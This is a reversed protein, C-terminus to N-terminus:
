LRLLTRKVYNKYTYYIIHGEWKWHEEWWYHQQVRTRRYSFLYQFNNSNNNFGSTCRETANIQITDFELVNLKLTTISYFHAISSITFHWHQFPRSPPEKWSVKYNENRICVTVVILILLFSLIAYDWWYLTISLLPPGLHFFRPGFTNPVLGVRFCATDQAKHTFFTIDKTFQFCCFHIM